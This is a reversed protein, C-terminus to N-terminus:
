AGNVLASKDRFFIFLSVGIKHWTKFVCMCSFQIGACRTLSEERVTKCGLLVVDVVGYEKEVPKLLKQAPRIVVNHDIWM